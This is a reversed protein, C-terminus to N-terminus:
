LDDAFLLPTVVVPAFMAVPKPLLALNTWIMPLCRPPPNLRISSGRLASNRHIPDPRSQIPCAPPVQARILLKIKSGQHITNAIGLLADQAATPKGIQPANPLNRALETRQCNRQLTDRSGTCLRQKRTVLFLPADGLKSAMARRKVDPSRGRGRSNFTPTLQSSTMINMEFGKAM